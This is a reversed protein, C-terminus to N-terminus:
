PRVPRWLAARREADAAAEPTMRAAAINRLEVFAKRNDLLPAQGAAVSFWLYAEGYDRPLPGEFYMQGLYYQARIDDGEAARRYWRAAEGPDQEVGGRGQRYFDGVMRQAPAIGAEAARRYWALAAGDDQTVGVGYHHFQGIQFAAPPYGRDAARRFWALAEVADAMGYHLIAALTFQAVASGADARERVRRMAEAVDPEDAVQGAAAPAVGLVVLVIAVCRVLRHWPGDGRRLDAFSSSQRAM